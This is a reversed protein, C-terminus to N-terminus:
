ISQVCAGLEGRYRPLDLCVRIGGQLSRLALISTESAFKGQV